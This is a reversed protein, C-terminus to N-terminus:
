NVAKMKQIFDNQLKKHEPAKISTKLGAEASQLASMLVENRISMKAKEIEIAISQRADEELKKSIAEAEAMMKKKLEEAYARVRDMDKDANSVLNRLKTQIDKRASEAELREKEARQVLENYQSARNSFHAKVKDKLAFFLLGLLLLFNIAQSVIMKVPIGEDHHAGHESAFAVSVALMLVTLFTAKKM